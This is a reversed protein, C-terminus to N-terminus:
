EAAVKCTENAEGPSGKGGSGYDITSECWESLVGDEINRYISLGEGNSDSYSGIKYSVSDLIGKRKTVRNKWWILIELKEWHTNM